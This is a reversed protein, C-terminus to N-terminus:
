SVLCVDVPFGGGNVNLQRSEEKISRKNYGIIKRGRNKKQRWKLKKKNSNLKKRSKESKKRKKKLPKFKVGECEQCTQRICM